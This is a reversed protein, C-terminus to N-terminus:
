SPWLGTDKNMSKCDRELLLQQFGMWGCEQFPRRMICYNLLSVSVGLWVPGNLCARLLLLGIVAAISRPLRASSPSLYFCVLLCLSIFPLYFIFFISSFCYFSFLFVGYLYKSLVCFIGVQFQGTHAGEFVADSFNRGLIRLNCGDFYRSLHFTTRYIFVLKATFFNMM